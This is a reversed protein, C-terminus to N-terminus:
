LDAREPLSFRAELLAGTFGTRLYFGRPMESYPAGDEDFAIRTSRGSAAKPRVQLVKGLHGTIESTRGQAVLGALLEWDQTLIEWDQPAPSWLFPTGVIRARLPITREGQIPIWLVRSLKEKVRSSSWEADALRGLEISCVFTSETPRGNKGVPLTKLEIGLDPFDPEARSGATAGLLDELLEGTFGKARLSEAPVSRMLRAALAEISAGALSDARTLLEHESKPPTTFGVM